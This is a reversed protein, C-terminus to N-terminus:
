FIVEAYKLLEKSCKIHKFIDDKANIFLNIGGDQRDNYIRMMGERSYYSCSLIAPRGCGFDITYLPMYRLNTLGVFSTNPSNCMSAGAQFLVGVENEIVDITNKAYESSVKSCHEKIAQAIEKYSSNLVKQSDMFAIAAFSLNGSYAAPITTRQRCEYPLMVYSWKPMSNFAQIDAQLLVKTLLAALALNTTQEPDVDQRLQEFQQKSFHLLHQEKFAPTEPTALLLPAVNGPTKMVPVASQERFHQIHPPEISEVSAFYDSVVKRNNVPPAQLQYSPNDLNRTCEAWHNFFATAGLADFLMHSFSIYLAVYDSNSFRIIRIVVASHDKTYTARPLEGVGSHQYFKPLNFFMAKGDSSSEMFDEAPHEVNIDAIDPMCLNDPDVNIVGKGKDNVLPRGVLMPYHEAAVKCFGSAIRHLSMSQSDSPKYIYIEELNIGLTAMDLISLEIQQAQISKLYDRPSTPSEGPM